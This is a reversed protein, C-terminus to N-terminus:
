NIFYLLEEKCPAIETGLVEQMPKRLDQYLAKAIADVNEDLFEWARRLQQKRYALDRTLGSNFTERLESIIQPYQDVPTIELNFPEPAM